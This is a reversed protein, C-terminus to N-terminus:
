VVEGAEGPFWVFNAVHLGVSSVLEVPSNRAMAGGMREGDWVFGWTSTSPVKIM